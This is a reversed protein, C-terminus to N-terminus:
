ICISLMILGWFLLDKLIIIFTPIWPSNQLTYIKEQIWGSIWKNMKRQHTLISNFIYLRHNSSKNFTYIQIECGGWFGLMEVSFFFGVRSVLSKAGSFPHNSSMRTEKFPANLGAPKNEPATLKLSAYDWLLAVLSVDPPQFFPLPIEWCNISSTDQCSNSTVYRGCSMHIPSTYVSISTFVSTNKKRYIYKRGLGPTCVEPEVVRKNYPHTTYSAGWSFGTRWRTCHCTIPIIATDNGEALNRHVLRIAWM